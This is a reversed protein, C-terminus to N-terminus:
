PEPMISTLMASSPRGYGLVERVKRLLADPMIPKQLFAIGADLVGHHIIAGETYGSVYLVRMDPKIPSLREALERGSMRPMVVDTILLHIKGAHRECILFAEGGNQADLVNYGHRRLITRSMVRVQEDDEVLLITEFGHLVPGALVPASVETQRDTRPLYVRFSTGHGLETYVWLHGQSQKVIGFVTSLGLGTGKGHEKTTFFPEFIRERTAANMGVGTDTVALMIYPGPMVDRHEAAYDAGLQANVVEITLKGGRPMADRANVALNMIIQEVQSPDAHVNGLSPDVFVSLEVDEGLLRTLMNQMSRVVNGVDLVQPQLVQRRSFALLQRTLDAARQGARLVEEMEKHLPDGPRLQELALSSYGVIVWLLNNFDHAVGGALLGVAEMKQAQRLQGELSRREDIDQFAGRVMSIAGSADQEGHGMTRVWVRRGKATVIQAEIDFPKGERASAEVARILTERYEPAYFALAEELTPVTGAPVEHIACVQESWIVSKEPLKVSWGGLRAAHGAMQLLADNDAISSEARKLDDIDTCTGFWKLVVGSADRLPAARVLWWRYLGGEGRLRAEASYPVGSAMAARWSGLVRECDGPHLCESWGHQLSHELTLGTYAMWHQNFYVHTGDARAVWVVQPVTDALVRFNAESERLAAEVAQRRAIDEQLLRNADALQLSKDELKRILTQSYLKLQETEDGVGLKPPSLAVGPREGLLAQIRAVFDEPEMPKLLFADAGFDLALREDESRTYTATYVVFKVQRLQEDAKWHRLLTYGDMVPMLLDSVVLDPRSLRAMALAQAGHCASDVTFGHGELLARLYYVNEDKDDVLLVRTM